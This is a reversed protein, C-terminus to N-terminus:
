PSIAYQLALIAYATVLAADAEWFQNDTNVWSGDPGQLSVIKEVLERKWEIMSGDDRRLTDSGSLRLAKGMITYYYFLGRLGMGPNEEVSWHRASWAIASRVRPDARDAQAYIMSEIASYTMSGFGRLTVFGERNVSTGGREGTQAYGFGGHNDPDSEDKNQLREIFQLAKHWDIDVRKGTSRFEELDQTVRM